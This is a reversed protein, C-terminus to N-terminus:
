ELMMGVTRKGSDGVWGSTGMKSSIVFMEDLKDDVATSGLEGERSLAIGDGGGVSALILENGKELGGASGWAGDKPSAKFRHLFSSGNLKKRRGTPQVIWDKIIDGGYPTSRREVKGHIFVRITLLRDKNVHKGKCFFKGIGTFFCYGCVSSLLIISYYLMISIFLIM